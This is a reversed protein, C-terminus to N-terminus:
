KREEGGVTALAALVIARPLSANTVTATKLRSRHREPAFGVMVEFEENPQALDSRTIHYVRAKSLVEFAASIDTAYVPIRWESQHGESEKYIYKDGFYLWDRDDCHDLICCPMLDDTITRIEHGMVKEAVLADLERDPLQDYQTM